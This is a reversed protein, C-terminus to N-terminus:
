AKPWCGKQPIPLHPHQMRGLAVRNRVADVEDIIAVDCACLVTKNRTLDKAPSKSGKSKINGYM